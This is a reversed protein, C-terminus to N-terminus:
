RPIRGWLAGETINYLAGPQKFTKGDPSSSSFSVASKPDEKFSAGADIISTTSARALAHGRRHGGHARLRLQAEALRAEHRRAAAQADGGPGELARRLRLRDRSRAQQLARRRGQLRHHLRRAAQVSQDPAAAPWSLRGERQRRRQRRRRRHVGARSCRRHRTCYSSSLADVHDRLSSTTRAAGVCPRKPAGLPPTHSLADLSALSMRGVCVQLRKAPPQKGHPNSDDLILNM